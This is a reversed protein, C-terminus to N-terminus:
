QCYSDLILFSASGIALAAVGWAATGKLAQRAGFDIHRRKCDIFSIFEGLSALACLVFFFGSVFVFAITKESLERCITKSPHLARLLTDSRLALRFVFFVILCFAALMGIVVWTEPKKLEEVMHRFDDRIWGFHRVFWSRKM